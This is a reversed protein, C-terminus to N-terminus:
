AIVSPEAHRAVVSEGRSDKEKLESRLRRVEDQLHRIDQPDAPAMTRTSPPSAARATAVAKELTQTKAQLSETLAAMSAIM